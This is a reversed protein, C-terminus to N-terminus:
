EWTLYVKRQDDDNYTGELRKKGEVPKLRATIDMPGSRNSCSKPSFVWAGEIFEASTEAWPCYPWWVVKLRAQSVSDMRVLQIEVKNSHGSGSNSWWGEMKLPLAEQAIATYSTLLLMSLALLKKDVLM